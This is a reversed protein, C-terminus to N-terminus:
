KLPMTREKQLVMPTLVILICESHIKVLEGAHNLLCQIREASQSSSGASFVKTKQTAERRSSSKMFDYFLEKLHYAAALDESQSLMLALADMSEEKLKSRHTPPSTEPETQFIETKEPHLQKQIRKRVNELAWTVYRVVHFKDIVITAQPFYDRALDRYVKNMDM